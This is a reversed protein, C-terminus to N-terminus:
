VDCVSESFPGRASANNEAAVGGPLISVLLMVAWLAQLRETSAAMIRQNLELAGDLISRPDWSTNHTRSAQCGVAMSRSSALRHTSGHVLDKKRQTTSFLRYGRLCRDMGNTAAHLRRACLVRVAFIPLECRCRGNMDLLWSASGRTNRSNTPQLGVFSLDSPYTSLQAIRATRASQKRCLGPARNRGM